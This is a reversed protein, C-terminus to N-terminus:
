LFRDCESVFEIHTPTYRLTGGATVLEIKDLDVKLGPGIVKTKRKDMTDLEFSLGKPMSGGGGGSGLM